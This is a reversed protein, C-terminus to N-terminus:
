RHKNDRSISANQPLIFDYVLGLNFIIVPFSKPATLLVSCTLAIYLQATERYLLSAQCNQLTALWDTCVSITYSLNNLIKVETRTKNTTRFAM